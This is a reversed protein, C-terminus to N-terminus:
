RTVPITTGGFTSERRMLVLERKRYSLQLDRLVEEVHWFVVVLWFSAVDFDKGATRPFM